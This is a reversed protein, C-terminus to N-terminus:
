PSVHKAYGNGRAAMIDLAAAAVDARRYFPLHDAGHIADDADLSNVRAYLWERESIWLPASWRRALWGALGIHDPHFHTVILRTIPKGALGTAFIQEWAERTTPMDIGTDVVTWGAGDALLWLNIHNLAFPLRMRLWRVGPAVETMTGAPPAEDYPYRM